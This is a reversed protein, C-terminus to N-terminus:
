PGAAVRGLGSGASAGDTAPFESLHFAICPGVCPDLPVLNCDSVPADGQGYLLTFHGRDLGTARTTSLRISPLADHGNLAQPLLCVM